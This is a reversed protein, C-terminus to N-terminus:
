INLGEQHNRPHLAVIKRTDYLARRSLPLQTSCAAVNRTCTCCAITSNPIQQSVLMDSQTSSNSEGMPTPTTGPPQPCPWSPSCSSNWRKHPLSCRQLAGTSPQPQPSYYCRRRYSCDFVDFFCICTEAIGKSTIKPYRFLQNHRQICLFELKAQITKQRSLHKWHVVVFLASIRKQYEFNTSNIKKGCSLLCSAYYRHTGNLYKTNAKFM